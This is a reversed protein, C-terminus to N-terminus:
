LRACFQTTATMRLVAFSRMWYLATRATPRVDGEECHNARPRM